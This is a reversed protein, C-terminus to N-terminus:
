EASKRRLILKRLEEAGLLVAPFFSLFAIDKVTLPSFGFVANVKPMFILAVALGAEIALSKIVLPNKFFGVAFVSQRDTRCAFVNGMQAAVIGAFTMTTAAAYVAGSEPLPAGPTWGRIWFAFFFASMALAAEIPGLFCYARLLTKLDLLRKNRPRPPMNMVGKEPPEVGLGLAPFIDTGLDVALIQMVTLPLPIKFIVFGIFPIIEPINSALIYTVFKRINAYVARGERIAEVISAFNDDSLIIEAAEKAADSGRMGMAIGIDAKKLAPADNVGDGTVAVVEGNDQLATVVRLKDKPTVRAFIINGKGLVARLESHGLRELEEGTVAELRSGLGVEEAVAKATLGYDGTLMVVRIGATACAAVAAKVEPRPPDQMAVLGLFTLDRETDAASYSNRKEMRREAVALVRLGKGALGDNRALIEKKFEATLPITEGAMVVSACLELMERPAGKVYAVVHKNKEHPSSAEEHITAMRKRIREFAIHATRPYKKQLADLGDGAKMAATILAAETPDGSITWQGSEGSAPRHVAANNCLAAADLLRRVGLSGMADKDLAKGDLLFEGEPGYGSGTLEILPGNAYLWRVSMQNTTLTGTKDTCIVTASGLTEVASLKKVIAKKAAMRQVGMALSLTVTPLLGEPVNAVIIGIAFIFSGALGLGAAAYGLLFFLLGLGVAIYTVVKTINVMEKQLPSMEAKITETLYAVRGIESDMGTATVALRGTGSLVSTGAFVMNPVETWIFAHGDVLPESVKYVPKSEGTLASNDVRMDNAEILRGDAPVADGEDLVVIDGPVIISAVVESETGDRIVRVKRPLLRELAEVAREAKYEQWFSFVANIIIVLFIAAGLEPMDAIFAMVGGAWLLMAFLNLFMNSLFDKLLSIRPATKLANPGRIRLRKAAESSSLGNESTSLETLVEDKELPIFASREGSARKFAKKVDDPNKASLLEARFARHLLLWELNSLTQIHTGSEKIPSVLLLFIQIPAEKKRLRGKGEAIGKRSIAVALAPAAADESLCHFIATGTGSLAGKASEHAKLDCLAREPKKMARGKFLSELLKDLTEGHTSARVDLLVERIMGALEM